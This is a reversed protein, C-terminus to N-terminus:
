QRCRCSYGPSSSPGQPGVTVMWIDLTRIRPTAPSSNTQQLSGAGSDNNSSGQLDAIELWWEVM